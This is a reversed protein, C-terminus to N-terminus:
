GWRWSKRSTNTIFSIISTIIQPLAAVLRPLANLLGQALGEIISFAAALIQDMNDLLTSCILIIAEVISPVLEPLAEGLGAAVSFVCTGTILGLYAFRPFLMPVLAYICLGAATILPM